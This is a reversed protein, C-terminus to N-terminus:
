QVSVTVGTQALANGVQVTVPVASGAPTGVPIQVNLQTLGAVATPTAGAYNVIASVGGVTAKVPLATAPYPTANALKGDTGGPNSQGDGTIYLSIFSGAKAPKAASNLSGDSNVAAAQGAGTSDATFIGPAASVVPVTTTASTNGQYQVTIDASAANALSYPAIAAVLNASVYILPAAVGNFFIQTGAIQKGIFGSAVSFQTLTAPGIAAGFLTVIEGPAIAGQAGSAANAVSGVSFSVPKLQRIIQNNSDAVFLNGGADLALGAPQNLQALTAQGGDGTYGTAGTGAIALITGSPLLKQVVSQIGDVFYLNGAADVTLSQATVGSAVTKISGDTSVKRISTSGVDGIYINGAADLALSTPSQLTAKNAAGGDGASGWVGTGAVTSIIGASTIKRVTHNGYDAVFLNGSSDLALGAPFAMDAKAAAGGDGNFGFYAGGAFTTIIGKADIKRIRNNGTDSIYVIGASDAAIGHVASIKAMTAVDNDGAFGPLGNGAITTITGSSATVKRVANTYYDSIYYNGKSDLVVRQPKYLQAVTALAGDGFFGQVQPVGAVTSIVYQQAPALGAALLLAPMLRVIQRTELKNLM